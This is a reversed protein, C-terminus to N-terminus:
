DYIFQQVVFYQRSGGQRFFKLHGWSRDVPINIHDTGGAKRDDGM